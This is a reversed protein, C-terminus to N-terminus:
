ALITARAAIKGMPLHDAADRIENSKLARYTEISMGLATVMEYEGGNAPDAPRDGRHKEPITGHTDYFEEVGNIYGRQIRFATRLLQRTENPKLRDGTERMANMHVTRALGRVGAWNFPAWVNKSREGGRVGGDWQENSEETNTAIIGGPYLLHDHLTGLVGMSQEGNAIGTYLPYATAASVIDTQKGLRFNYDRYMGSTPDWLYKNIAQKRDEALMRYYEAREKDGAAGYAMAITTEHYAMLSNHDVPLIDTTNITHINKGDEFYRSSFDWGSAAGARLDKYVKQMRDAREQGALGGIAILATEVDESYSELRPGEGDDWFRNLYSGDPMRVLARHTYTNGDIPIDDMIDKGDMWYDKYNKELTPLYRTLVSPGMRDALLRVLHAFYDPQARTTYFDASGNLAHGFRNIQYEMNDTMDLILDYRGDAAYGKAMHYGDWLFSHRGFRGIGAVARDYPLKVDFHGQHTNPFIFRERMERVYDDIHQGPRAKYSEITPPDITFHQDFFEVDSFDPTQSLVEYRRKAEEYPINPTATALTMGDAYKERAGIYMNGMPGPDPAFTRADISETPVPPRLLDLPVSLPREM